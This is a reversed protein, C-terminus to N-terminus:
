RTSALNDARPRNPVRGMLLRLAMYDGPEIVEAAGEVVSLAHSLALGLAERLEQPITM